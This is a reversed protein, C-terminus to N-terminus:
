RTTEELVSKTFNFWQHSTLKATLAQIRNYFFAQTSKSERPIFIDNPPDQIMPIEVILTGLDPTNMGIDARATVAVKLRNHVHEIAASVEM